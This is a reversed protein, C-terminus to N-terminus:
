KRDGCRTGSSCRFAGRCAVRGALSLCGKSHPMSRRCVVGALGQEPSLDWADLWHYLGLRHRVRESAEFDVIRFVIIPLGLERAREYEDRVEHSQDAAPTYLLILLRSRKIADLIGDIWDSGPLIDRRAMWCRQGRSELTACIAEALAQDRHSHSIFICPDM